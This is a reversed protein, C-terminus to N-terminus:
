LALNKAFLTKGTGPPGYLLANRYLGRNEKTNRTTVAIDRVREELSPHLVVGELVDQPRSFLRRSVQFPHQLAELVTISSTESVLSPKWLRAEFFGNKASKVGVALLTLGIVTATVTYRDTVFARFREGFMTVATRISAFFTQHHKSEEQQRLNEENVLKLKSQEELQLTPEQM